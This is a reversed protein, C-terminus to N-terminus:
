CAGTKIRNYNDEILRIIEKSISTNHENALDVLMQKEGDTCRLSLIIANHNLTSVKTYNTSINKYNLGYHQINLEEIREMYEETFLDEEKCDLVDLIKNLTSKKTSGKCLIKCLATTNTGIAESFTKRNMGKLTILLKMKDTNIKKIGNVNTSRHTEGHCKSCLPMLNEESHNIKSGDLHHIISALGGCMKCKYNCKELIVLRIDKMRNHNVYGTKM